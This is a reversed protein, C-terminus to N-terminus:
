KAIGRVALTPTPDKQPAELRSEPERTGTANQFTWWRPVGGRGGDLPAPSPWVSAEGCLTIYVRDSRTQYTECPQGNSDTSRGIPYRLRPDERGVYGSLSLFSGLLLLLIAVRM